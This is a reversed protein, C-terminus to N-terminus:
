RYRVLQPFGVNFYERSNLFVKFRELDERYPRYYKNEKPNVRGGRIPRLRRPSYMKIGLAIFTLFSHKKTNHQPHIISWRYPSELSIELWAYPTDRLQRRIKDADADADLFDEVIVKIDRKGPTYFTVLFTINERYAKAISTLQQTLM